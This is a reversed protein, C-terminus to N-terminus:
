HIGCAAAIFLLVFPLAIVCAAGLVEGAREYWPLARWYQRTTAWDPPNLTSSPPNHRM